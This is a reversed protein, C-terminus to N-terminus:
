ARYFHNHTGDGWWSNAGEQWYGSDYFGVEGYTFYYDMADKMDSVAIGHYSNQGPNFGYPVCAKYVFYEVSWGSQSCRNLTAAVIKAREVTSEMGGYENCILQMILNYEYDTLSCNVSSAPEMYETIIEIDPNCESCKRCELDRTSVIEYCTSDCWHCTSKHIYHTSPKYVISASVEQTSQSTTEKNEITEIKTTTTIAEKVATTQVVPAATSKTTTTTITITGSITLGSVPKTSVTTIISKSSTSTLTGTTTTTRTTTALTTAVTTSETSVFTESNSSAFDNDANHADLCSYSLRGFACAGIVIGTIIGIVKTTKRKM